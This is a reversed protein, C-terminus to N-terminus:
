IADYDDKIASMEAATIRGNRLPACWNPRRQFVTVHAVKDAIACIVQVGTAGTGVVAGRKGELDVGEAPWDYTHFSLGEFADRNAFRPPPRVSRLGLGSLL